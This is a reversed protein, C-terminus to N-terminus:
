VYIKISAELSALIILFGKIINVIVITLQMTVMAFRIACYVHKFIESVNIVNLPHQCFSFDEKSFDVNAGHM